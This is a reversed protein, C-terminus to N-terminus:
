NIETYGTPIVIAGCHECQLVPIEIDTHPSMGITTGMAICLMAAVMRASGCEPCLECMMDDYTQFVKDSEHAIIGSRIKRMESM